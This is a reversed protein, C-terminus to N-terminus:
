AALPQHSRLFGRKQALSFHCVIAMAFAMRQCDHNHAQALLKTPRSRLWVNSLMFHNSILRTIAWHFGSAQSSSAM